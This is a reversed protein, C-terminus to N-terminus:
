PGLTVAVKTAAPVSAGPKPVQKVIEGDKARAGKKKTLGGVRCDAARIRKKASKLTKGSLKPVHCVPAPAAIPVPPSTQAPAPYAFSQGATATGGPTTVSIPVTGTGVPATATIQNESVVSFTTPTSGFRVASVEAFDTGAITV